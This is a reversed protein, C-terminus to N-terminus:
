DLRLLSSDSSPVAGLALFFWRRDPSKVTCPSETPGYGISVPSMDGRALSRHGEARRPRRGRRSAMRPVHVESPDRRRARPSFRFKPCVGRICILHRSCPRPGSGAHWWNRQVRSCRRRKRKRAPESKVAWWNNLVDAFTSANKHLLIWLHSLPHTHHTPPTRM